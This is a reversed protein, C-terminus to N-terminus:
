RTTELIGLSQLLLTAEAVGGMSYPIRCQKCLQAYQHQAQARRWDRVQSKKVDPPALALMRNHTRLGSATKVEFKLVLQREPYWVELDPIGKTQRTGGRDDIRTGDVFHGRWGQSLKYVRGGTTSFLNRVDRETLEEPTARRRPRSPKM